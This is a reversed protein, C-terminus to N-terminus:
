GLVKEADDLGDKGVMLLRRTTGGPGPATLAVAKSHSAGAAIIAHEPGLAAQCTTIDRVRVRGGALGRIAAALADGTRQSSAMDM